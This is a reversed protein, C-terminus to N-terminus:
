FNIFDQSKKSIIGNVKDSLDNRDVDEDTQSDTQEEMPKLRLNTISADRVFQFSIEEYIM